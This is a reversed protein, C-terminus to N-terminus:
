AAKALWARMLDPRPTLMERAAEENRHIGDLLRPLGDVKRNPLRTAPRWPKRQDRKYAPPKPQRQPEPSGGVFVIVPHAVHHRYDSTM